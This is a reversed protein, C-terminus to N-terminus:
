VKNEIELTQEMRLISSNVSLGEGFYVGDEMTVRKHRHELFSNFSTAGLQPTYIVRPLSAPPLM